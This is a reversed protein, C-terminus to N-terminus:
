GYLGDLDDDEDEEDKPVEVVKKKTLDMRCLPCTGKSLLWPGVCELDFCHTGHCPLEVVLPYKDDLYREACIPCADDASRELQKRSVRELTDLYAQDLGPVEAPPADMDQELSRMLSVLLERNSRTPADAELTAFQDRVLAFLGAMDVPTPGAHQQQQPTGPADRTMQHLHSTFSSMDPRRRHPPKTSAQINHEVEYPNSAM